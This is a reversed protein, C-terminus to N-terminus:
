TQSQPRLFLGKTNNPKLFFYKKKFIFRHLAYNCKMIFIFRNLVPMEAAPHM